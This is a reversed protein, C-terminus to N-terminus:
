EVFAASGIRSAGPQGGGPVQGVGQIGLGRGRDLGGDGVLDLGPAHEIVAVGYVLPDVLLEAVLGGVPVQVLRRGPDGSPDFAREPAEYPGFLDLRTLDDGQM